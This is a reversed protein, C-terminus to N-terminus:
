RGRRSVREIEERVLQEVLSPLNEDLWQKLMPRLQDGVVEELSRSSGSSTLMSNALMGFSSAAAQETESSMLRTTQSNANMPPEEFAIEGDNESYAPEAYQPARAPEPEYVPEPELEPEPEPEYIEEPAEYVPAAAVPQPQYAPAPEPEEYIPEPEDPLAESLELVEEDEFAIDEEEPEDEYAAQAPEYESAPTAEAGGSDESIIRRISDLIEEMTPEKAPGQNSM